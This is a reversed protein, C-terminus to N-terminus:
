VRTERYGRFGGDGLAHEPGIAQSIAVALDRQAALGREVRGEALLAWYDALGDAAGPFRCGAGVIAIPTRQVTSSDM